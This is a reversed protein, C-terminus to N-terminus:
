HIVIETQFLAGTWLAVFGVWVIRLHLTRKRFPLLTLFTPIAAIGLLMLLEFIRRISWPEVAGTGHFYSGGIEANYLGFGREYVCFSHIFAAIVPAAFAMLVLGFWEAWGPFRVLFLKYFNIRM